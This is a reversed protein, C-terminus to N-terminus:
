GFKKQKVIVNRMYYICCLLLLPCVFFSLYNSQVVFFIEVKIQQICFPYVVRIKEIRM